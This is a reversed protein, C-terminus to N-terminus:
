LIAFCYKKLSSFLNKKSKEAKMRSYAELRLKRSEKQYDAFGQANREIDERTYFAHSQSIMANTSQVQTTFNPTM